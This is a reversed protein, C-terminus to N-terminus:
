TNRCNERQIREVGFPILSGDDNMTVVESAHHISIQNPLSSDLFSVIKRQDGVLIIKLDDSSKDIANLAGQIIAQPALDGGMADLAIIM